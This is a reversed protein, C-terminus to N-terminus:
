AGLRLDDAATEAFQSKLQLRKARIILVSWAFFLELAEDILGAQGSLKNPLGKLKRAVAFLSSHRRVHILHQRFLRGMGLVEIGSM